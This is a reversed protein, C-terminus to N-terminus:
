SRRAWTESCRRRSRTGAAGPAAITWRGCSSGRRHSTTSPERFRGWRDQVLQAHPGGYVFVIAPYKKSSDFPVPKVLRTYFLTGDSGRFSDMEISGLTYDALRDPTDDLVGVLSGDARRVFTKPATTLNSYTSVFSGGSPAPILSHTGREKTIRQFGSGDLKVRYVHRERPDKETAVFSVLGAKEDVSWPGDIM